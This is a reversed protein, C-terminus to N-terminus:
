GLLEQWPLVRDVRLVDAMEVSFQKPPTYQELVLHQATRRILVKVLVARATEGDDLVEERPRLYVVVDDGGRVRGKPDVVLMDGDRYRPDMSSGAVYLGYASANGDLITPRRAYGLVESRNLTTQEIAEGDIQRSAGLATGYLPLDRRMRDQSAGEMKFPHANPELAPDPFTSGSVGLLDGVSTGLVEALRMLRAAPINVRGAEWKSVQAMSVGVAEAVKQLTLGHQNRYRRIENQMTM